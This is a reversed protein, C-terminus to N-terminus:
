QGDGEFEKRYVAQEHVCADLQDTGEKFAVTRPRRTPIAMSVSIEASLGGPRRRALFVIRVGLVVVPIFDDSPLSTPM